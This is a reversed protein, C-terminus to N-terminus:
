HAKLACCVACPVEINCLVGLQLMSFDLCVTVDKEGVCDTVKSKVADDADYAIFVLAASDKKVAKVTSNLGIKLESPHFDAPSM